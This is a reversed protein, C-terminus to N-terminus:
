PVKSPSAACYYKRIEKFARKQDPGWIWKAKESTIATLPSIIHSRHYWLQRYFNVFGLFSRPQRKNSPEALALVALIKQNQPKIGKSSLTYGLYDVQQTALFTDEIHVHLNQSQLRELVLALRQLHHHFSLKTFLIINDIYVIVVEFDYFTKTMHDQFIDSSPMCGQPLRAYVYRGWPLISGCLLKSQEDLEFHYYGRNLDLCTAYTFGQVKWLIEDILPLHVPKCVLSKNLQRLDTLFRVGGNKKARFLCPAGWESHINVQLVGIRCLEEVEKRAIDFIHHPIMYARGCFPKANPKLDLHVKVNPIKGLKRM